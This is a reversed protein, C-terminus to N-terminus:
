LRFGSVESSVFFVPTAFFFPAFFYLPGGQGRIDVDPPGVDRRKKQIFPQSVYGVVADLLEDVEQGCGAPLVSLGAALSNSCYVVPPVKQPGFAFFHRTVMFSAQRIFDTLTLFRLVTGLSTEASGGRPM